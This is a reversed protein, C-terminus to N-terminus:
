LHIKVELCQKFFNDEFMQKTGDVLFIISEQILYENEKELDFDNLENNYTFHFSM